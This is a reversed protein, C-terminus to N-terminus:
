VTPVKLKILNRNGSVLGFMKNYQRLEIDIDTWRLMGNKVADFNKKTQELCYENEMICFWKILLGSMKSQHNKRKLDPFYNKLLTTSSLSNWYNKYIERHDSFLMMKNISDTVCSNIESGNPLMRVSQFDAKENSDFVTFISKWIPWHDLNFGTENLFRTTEM